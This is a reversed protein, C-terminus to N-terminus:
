NSQLAFELKNAGELKITARLESQDNYRAPLYQVFSDPSGPSGSAEKGERFARIQVIKEGPTADCEFAGNRIDAVYQRPPDGTADVLLLQGEALPKGDLTVQGSVAGKKPGVVSGSSGTCGMAGVCLVVVMMWRLPKVSRLMEIGEIPISVEPTSGGASVNGTFAEARSVPM